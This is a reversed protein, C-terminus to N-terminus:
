LHKTVLVYRGKVGTPQYGLRKYLHRASNHSVFGLEAVRCGALRAEDEFRKLLASAVGRRRHSPDVNVSAIVAKEAECEWFLYGVRINQLQAITMRPLATVWQDLHRGINDQWVALQDREVDEIYMRELRYVLSLDTPNGRRLEM